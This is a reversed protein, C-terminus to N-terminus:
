GGTKIETPFLTEKKSWQLLADITLPRDNHRIYDACLEDLCQHLVVHRQRHMSSMSVTYQQLGQKAVALNDWYSVGPNDTAHIALVGLLFKGHWVEQATFDYMWEDLAAHEPSLRQRHTQFVIEENNM